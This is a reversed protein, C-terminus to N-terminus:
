PSLPHLILLICYHVESLAYILDSTVRKLHLSQLLIVDQQKELVKVADRVHVARAHAVEAARHRQGVVAGVDLLEGPPGVVDDDPSRVAHVLLVVGTLLLCPKRGSFVFSIAM